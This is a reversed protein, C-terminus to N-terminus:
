FIFLLYSFLSSFSYSGAVIVASVLAKQNIAFKDAAVIFTQLVPIGAPQNESVSVSYTAATISPTPDSVLSAFM